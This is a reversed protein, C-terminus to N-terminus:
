HQKHSSTRVTRVLKHKHTKRAGYNATSLKETREKEPPKKKVEEEEVDSCLLFHLGIVGLWVTVPRGMRVTASNTTGIINLSRAWHRLIVGYM